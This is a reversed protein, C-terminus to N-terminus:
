RIRPAQNEQFIEVGKIFRVGSAVAQDIKKQDLTWYEDPVLSADSVKGVWKKIVTMTAFGTRTTKQQELVPVVVETAGTAKAKALAEEDIRKQEAKMRAEEANYWALQAAKTNVIFEKLPKTIANADAMIADITENLPDTYKKRKIDVQNIREKVVKLIEGAQNYTAQDIIKMEQHEYLFQDVGEAAEKWKEVDRIM